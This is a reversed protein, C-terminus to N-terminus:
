VDMLFYTKWFDRVEDDSMDRGADVWQEDTLRARGEVWLRSDEGLLHRLRYNPSEIAERIAVAVSSLEAALAIRSGLTRAGRALLPRYVTDPRLNPMKELAPTRTVGPEILVVRIGFRRVEIALAESASELAFKSAAYFGQGATIFRGAISSLNVICGANRERMGPLVLQILQMPGFFNIEFGDRVWSLDAEEVPSVLGVGANNILVDIHGCRDLVQAVAAECSAKSAVDLEIPEINLQEDRAVQLLAQGRAVSRMGAMVRYGNRALELSTALGIGSNAGTILVVQM